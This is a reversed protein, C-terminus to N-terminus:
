SNWKRVQEVLGTIRSKFDFRLDLMERTLHPVALKAFKVKDFTKRQLRDYVFDGQHPESPFSDVDEPDPVDAIDYVKAWVSGPIYNEIEKPQTIWQYATPIRELESSIRAVRRKLDAGVSRSDSDCLVAINANLRLLNTFEADAEEPPKFEVTALVSGGYFACQYDRGERFDGNSYLEIFRNVYIRDSPGELWIVGNSLLLDSPKAGLDDLINMRDFHGEIYHIGASGNKRQVHIVQSQSHSGFMDVAISSHTSLFLCGSEKEIFDIIFKFLRRVLTPHLNNEIEELAFVCDKPRLGNVAPVVLLFLLVLVVTKLGSGSSSLPVAIDSGQERLCIELSSQNTFSNDFERVLIEAFHADPGFIYNLGNLLDRQILLHNHNAKMIIMHSFSTAGAGNSGVSNRSSAGEPVIDRDASLRFVHKSRSYCSGGDSGIKECVRKHLADRVSARVDMLANLDDQDTYIHVRDGEISYSIASHPLLPTPVEGSRFERDILLSDFTGQVRFDFAAVALSGGVFHEITDLFRSKGSNNRGIVINFQKPPLLEIWDQGFCLHNKFFWKNEPM